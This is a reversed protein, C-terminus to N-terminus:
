FYPKFKVVIKEPLQMAEGTSPNRGLRAKRTVAKFIGFGAIRVEGNNNIEEKIVAITTELQLKAAAKSGKTVEAVKESLQTANM